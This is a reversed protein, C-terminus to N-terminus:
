RAGANTTLETIATGDYVDVQLHRQNSLQFRGTAQHMRCALRFEGAKLRPADDAGAVAVAHWNGATTADDDTTEIKERDIAGAIRPRDKDGHLRANDDDAGDIAQAAYAGAIRPQDENGAIEHDNEYQGALGPRAFAGAIRPQDDKNVALKGKDDAGGLKSGEMAGGLRPKEYVGQLLPKEGSGALAAPSNCASCSFLKSGAVIFLLPQAAERYAAALQRNNHASDIDGIYTCDQAVASGALMAVIAPFLHLLRM